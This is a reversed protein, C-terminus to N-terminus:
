GSSAARPLIEIVLRYRLYRERVFSPKKDQPEAGGDSPKTKKMEAIQHNVKEIVSQSLLVDVEM